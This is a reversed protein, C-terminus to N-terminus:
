LTPPHPLEIVSLHWRNQNSRHFLSLVSQVKQQQQVLAHVYARHSQPSQYVYVERLGTEVDPDKQKWYQQLLQLALPATLLPPAPASPTLLYGRGLDYEGLYWFGDHSRYFSSRLPTFQDNNEIIWHAWAKTTQPDQYVYLDRIKAGSFRRLDSKWSQDKWFQRILQRAVNAELVSDGRQYYLVETARAYQAETLNWFGDHTYTFLSQYRHATPAQMGAQPPALSIQWNVRAQHSGSAQYVYLHQLTPASAFKMKSLHSLVLTKALSPTLVPSGKLRFRTEVPPPVHESALHWQQTTAYRFLSRWPLKEWRPQWYVWAQPSKPEQYVYLYRSSFSKQKEEKLYKTLLTKAVDVTLEAPATVSYAHQEGDQVPVAYQCLHWRDQLSRRFLTAVEWTRLSQSSVQKHLKWYATATSTGARQVVYLAHISVNTFRGRLKWFEQILQKAQETSLQQSGPSSIRSEEQYATEIQTLHWHGRNSRLFLARQTKQRLSDYWFAHAFSRGPNQHIYLALFPPIQNKNRRQMSVYRTLLQRALPLSLEEPDAKRRAYTDETLEIKLTGLVRAVSTVAPHILPNKIAFYILGALLVTEVFGLFMAFTAISKGRFISPALRIQRRSVWGLLWVLPGFVFFISLFLALLSRFELREPPPEDPLHIEELPSNSSDDADDWSPSGPSAYSIEDEWSASPQQSQAVSASPVPANHYPSRSVATSEGVAGEEWGEEALPDVYASADAQPVVPRALDPHMSEPNQSQWDPRSGAQQWSSASYALSAAPPSTKMTSDAHSGMSAPPSSTHGAQAPSSHVGQAQSAAHRYAAVDIIHQCNCAFRYNEPYGTTDYVQGCVPCQIIM